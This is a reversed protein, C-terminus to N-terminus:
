RRKKKKHQQKEYYPCDPCKKLIKYHATIGVFSYWRSPSIFSKSIGSGMKKRLSWEASMGFNEAVRYKAGLVFPISASIPSWNRKGDSDTSYIEQQYYGVGIGTAVFTSVKPKDKRPDLPLFNFEFLAHTELVKLQSSIFDFACNVGARIAYRPNLNYRYFVGAAPFMSLPLPVPLITQLHEQNMGLFVGFDSSKQAKIQLFVLSIVVILGIRKM